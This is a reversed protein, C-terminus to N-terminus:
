EGRRAPCLDNRAAPASFRGHRLFELTQAVVEADYMMLSHSVPLVLHACMGAVETAQVSVTGDDPDDVLFMLFPNLSMTGAIIGLEFDVPPLRAPLYNAGAGLSGAPGLVWAMGPIRLLRNVVTTGQNPPALMVVRGLWEHPHTALYQRLLIGGMSHTVFHVKRGPGCSALVASLTDDALVELNGARSSYDSNVITFGAAGITEALEDMSGPGRLYGHLLVVCDEARAAGALMCCCSLVLLRLTTLTMTKM